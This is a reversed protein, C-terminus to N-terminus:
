GIRRSLDEFFGSVSEKLQDLSSLGDDYDEGGQRQKGQIRDNKDDYLMSSSIATSTSYKEMRERVLDTDAQDYGFFQDSSISKAKSYKERAAFSEVGLTTSILFVLSPLFPHIGSPGV